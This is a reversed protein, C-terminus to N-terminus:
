EDFRLEAHCGVCEAEVAGVARAVRAVERAKAADELRAVVQGFTAAMLALHQGRTMAPEHEGHGKVTARPWAPQREAAEHHESPETARPLTKPGEREIFRALEVMRAAASEVRELERESPDVVIMRAVATSAQAWEARLRGMAQELDKPASREVPPALAGDAGGSVAVGARYVLVEGGIWAAAFIAVATAGALWLTRAGALPSRRRARLREIALVVWLVTAAAGLALHAFRWRVIGGPWEVAANAVLGFAFTMLTLVCTVWTAVDGAFAWRESRRAAALAYAVLIVPVAGVTFHVLAPHVTVWRIPSIM